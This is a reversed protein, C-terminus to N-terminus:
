LSKCLLEQKSNFFKNWIETTMDEINEYYCKPIERNASFFLKKMLIWEDKEFITTSLYRGKNSSYLFWGGYYGKYEQSMSVSVLLSKDNKKSSFNM